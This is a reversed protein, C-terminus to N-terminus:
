IERREELFIDKSFISNRMELNTLINDSFPNLRHIRRIDHIVEDESLNRFKKYTNKIEDDTMVRLVDYFNNIQINEGYYCSDKLLKVWWGHFEM